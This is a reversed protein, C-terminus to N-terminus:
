QRSSSSDPEISGIVPRVTEGLRTDSGFLHWCDILLSEFVQPRTAEPSFSWVPSSAGPKRTMLNVLRMANVFRQQMHHSEKGSLDAYIETAAFRKAEADLRDSLSSEFRMDERISQFVSRHSVDAISGVAVKGYHKVARTLVDIIENPDIMFEKNLAFTSRPCPQLGKVAAGHESGEDSGTSYAVL